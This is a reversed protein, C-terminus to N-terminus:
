PMSLLSKQLEVYGALLEKRGNLISYIDSFFREVSVKLSALCRALLDVFVSPAWFSKEHIEHFCPRLVNELTDNM